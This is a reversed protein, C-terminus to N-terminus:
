RKTKEANLAKQAILKLARQCLIGDKQKLNRKQRRKLWEVVDLPLFRWSKGVKFGSQRGMGEGLYGRLTDESAQLYRKLEELTMPQNPDIM